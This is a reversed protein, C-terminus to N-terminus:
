LNKSFMKWDSFFLSIVKEKSLYKEKHLTISNLATASINSRTDGELTVIILPLINLLLIILEKTLITPSLIGSTM